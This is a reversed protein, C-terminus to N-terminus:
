HHDYLEGAEVLISLRNQPPPLPCTAFDTFACPPSYARNFDLTVAGDLPLAAKLYRGAPYTTAGSTQDRFIIFLQDGEVLADLRHQQGRLEFTLSGPSHREEVTGLVTLISFTTPAAHPAFAATVCYADDVTYWRRGSFAARAPHNRDRARIAFRDGRRIVFMELDGLTVFDPAGDADARLPIDASPQGNVLVPADGATRLWVEGGALEFSGAITPAKGAPLVIENEPASGFRNAGEQLWFLGILTLWSDEARLSAEMSTRWRRVDDHYTIREV